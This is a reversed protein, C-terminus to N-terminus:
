LDSGAELMEADAPVDFIFCAAKAGDREPDEESEDNRGSDPAKVSVAIFQDQELEDFEVTPTVYTRRLHNTLKQTKLIKM